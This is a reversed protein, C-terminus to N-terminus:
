MSTRRAPAAPPTRPPSPPPTPATRRTRTRPIPPPRHAVTASTGATASRTATPTPPEPRPSPSRSPATGSTKNATAEAIPSRGGTANEIRYLASNQDGGFYGTGYDLVYLAGDPGFTMDMVQTGSWPFANISKVTGDTDQDIRKIWRRGFEGAFFNGDYAEPFKVPSDLDADYHYVPGGMPSESGTGFEPM